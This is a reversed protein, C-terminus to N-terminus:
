GGRPRWDKVHTEAVPAVDRGLVQRAFRPWWDEVADTNDGAPLPDRELAAAIRDWLADARERAEKLGGPLEPKLCRRAIDVHLVEDAWDYDHFLASLTDGSALAVRHEYPKGRDRPMLSQEIAYLLIHREGPTCFRALKWSFTINIPLAKWDIGHSEMLAQGLMAHRAEDWAQRLMSVYYSWPQTRDSRNRAEAWREAVIGAIVEPVDMERIRKFLLAANREDPDRRDDLYVVDAPTTTDFLVSAPGERRPMVDFAYPRIARSPPPPTRLDDGGIGGATRVWGAVHAHWDKTAPDGAAVDDIGRCWEGQEAAILRLLRCTPQDCLPNARAVYQSIAEDLSPRVVAYVAAIRAATTPAALMEDLAAELAPDPVDWPSPSPERMEAIRGYLMAAHEADLWAHLALGCKAEWEPTSPLFAAGAIALRQKTYAIRHLMATADAVSQGPRVADVPTVIGAYPRM